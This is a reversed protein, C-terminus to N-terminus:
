QRSEAVALVERAARLGSEIAGEMTANQANGCTAEGAFFLTEDVPEALVDFAAIGGVRPYSYAGMSFPDRSWDHHYSEEMQEEVFQPPVRLAHALSRLALDTLHDGRAAATRATQSGGAWGTLLPDERGATLWWTPLPQDFAHVFFMGRLQKEGLWFPERFRLVVKTVPGMELKATANRKRELPPHFEIGAPHVAPARLVSVPVTIVASTCSLLEGPRNRTEIEAQGRKWKIACVSSSLHVECADRVEGFLVDIARELGGTCRQESASAPQEQEALTFWATSAIDPDVAHFGAAYQTVAERAQALEHDASTQALADRLSRDGDHMKRLRKLIGDPRESADDMEEWGDATRRLRRGQVPATPVHARRLLAGLPGKKELWEPGLEIPRSVHADWMSLVRGGLRERAELLTVRRGAQVLEKAAALGALGAGIIVTRM